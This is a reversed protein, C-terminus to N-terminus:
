IVMLDYKKLYYLFYKQLYFTSVPKLVSKTNACITEVNQNIQVNLWNIYYQM